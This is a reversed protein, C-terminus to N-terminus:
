IAVFSEQDAASLLFFAYPPVKNTLSNQVIPFGKQTLPTSRKIYRALLAQKHKFEQM